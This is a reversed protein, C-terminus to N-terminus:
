WRYFFALMALAAAALAWTSPEPVLGVDSKVRTSSFNKTFDGLTGQSVNEAYLYFGGLTGTPFGGDWTGGGTLPISSNTLEGGTITFTGNALWTPAGAAQAGFNNIVGDLLDGSVDANGDGDLDLKGTIHIGAGASQFAGTNDVKLDISIKPTGSFLAFGSAQPAPSYTLATSKSQFDGTSANYALNGNIGFIIPSSPDLVFNLLDGRASSVPLLLWLAASFLIGSRRLDSLSSKV